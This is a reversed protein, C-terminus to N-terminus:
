LKIHIKENPDISGAVVSNEGILEGSPIKLIHPMVEEFTYLRTDNAVYYTQLEEESIDPQFYQIVDQLWKTLTKEM